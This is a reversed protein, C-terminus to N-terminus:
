QEKINSYIDKITFVFVIMFSGIIISNFGLFLGIALLVLMLKIKTLAEDNLVFMLNSKSTNINGKIDNIYQKTKLELNKKYIFYVIEVLLVGIGLLVNRQIAITFIIIGLILKTIKLFISDIKLTIEQIGKMEERIQYGEEKHMKSMNVKVVESYFLKIIGNIM